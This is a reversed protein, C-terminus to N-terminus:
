AFLWSKKQMLKVRVGKKLAILKLFTQRPEQFSNRVLGINWQGIVLSMTRWFLLYYVPDNFMYHLKILYLRVSSLIQPVHSEKACM